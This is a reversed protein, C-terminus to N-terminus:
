LFNAMLVFVLALPCLYRLCWVVGLRALPTTESLEDQVLARDLRWFMFQLSEASAPQM